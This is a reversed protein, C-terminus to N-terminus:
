GAEGNGTIKSDPLNDPAGLRVLGDEIWQPILDLLKEDQPRATYSLGVCYASKFEDSFFDKLPTFQM